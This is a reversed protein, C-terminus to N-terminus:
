RASSVSFPDGSSKKEDAAFIHAVFIADFRDEGHLAFDAPLSAGSDKVYLRCPACVIFWRFAAVLEGCSARRRIVAPILVRNVVKGTNNVNDSAKATATQPPV